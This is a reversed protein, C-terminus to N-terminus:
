YKKGILIFLGGDSGLQNFLMSFQNVIRSYFTGIPKKEFINKYDFDFDSSPISSIFEINNKKFWGLVEDITHLSEIPHLYQDRIWAKKEDEDLKLKRLTPDLINLIKYGFIKFLYKRLITRIRGFKNYLGILVYGNKKLSKALIQFALYPNKTHHLVGNCWIFDFYDNSLVDDFIDANLFKINKLNNKDVFNKALNLSYITPDMAVIRNNSGIGFYISLQGTGCGVELVNKEYGIFKKFQKALLNKDGKESITKKNDNEKYNPFPTIKYFETVKKTESDTINSFFIGNKNELNKKTFSM